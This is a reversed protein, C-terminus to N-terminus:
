KKDVASNTLVEYVTPMVLDSVKRWYAPLKRFAEKGEKTQVLKALAELEGATFTDKLSRVRMSRVDDATLRQKFKWRAEEVVERGVIKNLDAALDQSFENMPYAKVIEEAYDAPAGSSDAPQSEKAEQRCGSCAILVAFVVLPGVFNLHRRLL